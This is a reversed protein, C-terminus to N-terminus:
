SSEPQADASVSPVALALSYPQGPMISGLCWGLFCVLLCGVITVFLYLFASGVNKSALLKVVDVAFTSMTTLGGCFGSGIAAAIEPNWGHLSSVRSLLGLIFSGALNVILTALPLEYYRVGCSDECVWVPLALSVAMRVTSGAAGGGAALLLLQWPYAESSM